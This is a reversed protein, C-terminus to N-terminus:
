FTLSLSNKKHALNQDAGDTGFDYGYNYNGVPLGM